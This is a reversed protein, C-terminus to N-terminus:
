RSSYGFATQPKIGAEVLAQPVKSEDVLWEWNHENWTGPLGGRKIRNTPLERVFNMLYDVEATSFSSIVMELILNSLDPLKSPDKSLEEKLALMFEEQRRSRMETTDTHRFRMFGVAQDGDLRQWGKKLHIHLHGRNDDYNMDKPVYVEVGGALEVIKKVFAYNITIVRDPVVGTLQRVGEIVLNEGGYVHLATIKVGEHGPVSVRSDRPIDLMGVGQNKFDFRVLHISDARAFKTIVKGGGYTYNEDCGMLLVILDDRGEFPNRPAFGPVHRLVEYRALPYTKLLWGFMGSALAGLCLLLYLFGVVVSRVTITRGPSPQMTNM